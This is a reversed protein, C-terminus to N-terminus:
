RYGYRDLIRRAQAGLVFSVFKRSQEIKSTRRIVAIAQDIPHYLNEPVDIRRGGQDYVLALATFAADANHTAAYQTTTSINQGFVVKPQIANWLHLTRLAEVAARGYPALEPKAIAVHTVASNALDEIREVPVRGDPIWLVLRGRAYIARTDALILDQRALADIHEVDAAAFVDFPAGNEIQQALQATAGLSLVVHIGTGREFIQDLEAFVRTLNAAAAVHIESAPPKPGTAGCGTWLLVVLLAPMSRM